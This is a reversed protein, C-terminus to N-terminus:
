CKIQLVISETVLLIIGVKILKNYILWWAWEIEIIVVREKKLHRYEELCDRILIQCVDHHVLYELNLSSWNSNYTTNM